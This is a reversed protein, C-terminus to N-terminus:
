RMGGLPMPRTWAIFRDFAEGVLVEPHDAVYHELHVGMLTALLTGGGTESTLRERAPDCPWPKECSNCDWEPQRPEHLPESMAPEPM